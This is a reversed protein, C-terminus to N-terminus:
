YHIHLNRAQNKALVIQVDGIHRESFGAECYVLYFEWLNIFNESFGLKRVSELANLFNTRWHRLTVVYHSTIDELHVMAFDTKRKIVDTIHNISILCSGPFIYKKILDVSEKYTDFGQDNYTIAQLAMLGDSKLLSSAVTFYESIYSYGVAEIMEISVLKDYTGQLQRYDVKLLTIKNELNEERIKGATYQYQAESITTTTVHCHYNKAAHIAFSGWGSGIELVRDSAKINLKRCIRDLKERSAAELSQNHNKFFAASYTMTPDLWLKYFANSLDYHAFINKKSGVLTNQCKIYNYRNIANLIWKTFGSEIRQMVFQNRLIIKTLLLLNDTKWYGATYAEAAGLVGASGVLSYFEQSIVKVTVVQNKRTEGFYYKKNQDLIIISGEKILELNKLFGLKYRTQWFSTKKSKSIEKAITKVSLSHNM